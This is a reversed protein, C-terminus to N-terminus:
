LRRDRAFHAARQENEEVALLLHDLARREPRRVLHLLAHKAVRMHAGRDLRERPLTPNADLRRPPLRLLIKALDGSAHVRGKEGQEIHGHVRDELPEEGGNLYIAELLDGLVRLAMRENENRAMARVEVEQDKRPKEVPVMEHGRM